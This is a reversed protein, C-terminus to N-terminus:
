LNILVGLDASMGYKNSYNYLKWGTLNNKQYRTEETNTINNLNLLLSINKTVKQKVAIDVKTYAGQLADTKHTSSYSAYYEGQHFVSLRFTFGRYDYGLSVNGFFKPQDELKQKNETQVIKSKTTIVPRGLVMTTDQYQEVKSSLLVAESKILSFNYTLLLNKLLGPLYRFNTQHEVELGWVKTPKDSNYPFNLTYYQDESIPFNGDTLTYWDIGLQDLLETGTRQSISTYHFMDKIEKYFVSVSFLGLDNGFFQTQLEFNWAEANKLDPNGVTLSAGSSNELIFKMLRRNFDPRAIAKYAAARVNLFSLPRFIMQVNPLISTQQFNTTTDELVGQPFPFGSIGQPTYKAGYDNNESEVRVGTILTLERGFDLTNMAYAASVRETVNYSNGDYSNDRYYQSTGDLKTGNIEMARWTDLLDKDMLPFLSYKGYIERSDSNANVFNSFRVQGSVIDLNQFQTPFQKPSITGDANKVYAYDMYGGVNSYNCVFQLESFYRSKDRYKGGFKFEGSIDNVLNYEKLFDIKAVKNKDYNKGTQDNANSLVAESFNNVAYPILAEFPGKWYEAPVNDMGAVASGDSFQSSETFNMTYDLPKKSESQSFSLNWDIQFGALFNQGGLATNFISTNVKIHNYSYQVGNSSIGTYNRNSVYYDRSTENYTANLKLNGNDPTDFDLYVSGGNRKRTEQSYVIMLQNIEYDLDNSKYSWNADAQEYSRIKKETNGSLQVGFRKDFFRQGWHGYAYYQNVSEDMASYTGRLDFSIERQDPAKKTVFNITGAIADGDKDSTISKFLEIGSLSSQSITSLDVGRDSGGTPAMRVGDVTIASFKSSLGRLIAQSAEGGSRTISVGPLRGIAEAANADPLEKIKQESVVNVINNSTLQQNIAAAQGLAQASVVIEEGSIVDLSLNESLELTQNDKIAVAVEKSKYGIYSFVVTYNGAPVRNIKYEGEIDTASGLATGKLYVNAGILTEHTLSDTVSGSLSGQGYLSGCLLLLSIFLLIKVKLIKEM